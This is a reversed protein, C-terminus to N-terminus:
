VPDNEGNDNDGFAVLQYENPRRRCRPLIQCCGCCQYLGLLLGGVSIIFAAAVIWNHLDLLEDVDVGQDKQLVETYGLANGEADLAALRFLPSGLEEPIEIVTEFGTKAFQAVVDFTSDEVARADWVELRWAVVETAGNWSVHVRDGMVAADPITLPRGVWTGKSARYSVVRGFSFFASAAFHVDCLLDGDATYETFAASHGWGVLVRGSEDLIQVNGLSVSKMQQPHYYAALLEATRQSLDLQIVMGRSESDPDSNSHAANDFLTITNNAHWRADHQWAFNTAQGHSLDTFENLKGGLTWLVNGTVHDIYSVAHLHRASVIYNGQEDKDVSNIHFFDFANNRDKGAGDLAEYSSTVPYHQSARWEFLLEGTEIHIDQFVGDLIWGLEPGGISTLDAPIPDYVTVLATGQETIHFEHLDGGGFNGIPSIQYKQTYTSDLMYWSGSGRSEVETGEWYTLYDAGNYRQVKFDQTTDWNYKMWVLEGDADLVVPGPHAVSDGRPALFTYRSDCGSAWETIEVVPSEYEFSAYSRSPGLGYFGLDYPSLDLRLRFRLLQPVVFVYFLYLLSIVVGAVTFILGSFRSRSSSLPSPGPLRSFQRRFCAPTRTWSPM